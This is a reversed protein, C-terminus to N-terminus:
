PTIILFTIITSVELVVIKNEISVDISNFARLKKEGVEEVSGALHSILYKLVQLSGSFYVSQQQIIHSKTMDTYETYIISCLRYNCLIKYMLKESYHRLKSELKDLYSIYHRPFFVM